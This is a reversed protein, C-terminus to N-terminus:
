GGLGLGDSQVVRVGDTSITRKTPGCAIPTGDPEVPLVVLPEEPQKRVDDTVYAALLTRRAVGNEDPLKAFVDICAGTREGPLEEIHSVLEVRRVDGCAIGAPLPMITDPTQANTPGIELFGQASPRTPPEQNVCVVDPAPLAEDVRDQVIGGVQNGVLVGAMAAAVTVAAVKLKARPGENLKDIGAAQMFATVATVAGGLATFLGTLDVSGRESAM